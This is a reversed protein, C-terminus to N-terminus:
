DLHNKISQVIFKIDKHELEAHLPLRLLRESISATNEGGIYRSFAKGMPSLHLPMYHFVADIKDDKLKKSLATREETSNLIIYFAHINEAIFKEPILKLKGKNELDKLDEYYIKSLQKRKGIINNSQQLQEFLVAANLENMQFKSGYDVWEYYPTEGKEFESRNTGNHYINNARDRHEKKNILLLGGQIANIHKTIDFSVVGFDAISGLFKNEYKCGFGMAADEILFLSHKDAIERLKEMNCSHGAYHMAIIAKTKLTIAKEILKEDINLTNPNIDVFVPTAGQNVFASATSVFTFSPMIVEDGPKINLLLAIMELAGTASHTLFLKSQPYYHKLKELCLNSFHKKRFLDYDSLLHQLNKIYADSKHIDNFLIKSM